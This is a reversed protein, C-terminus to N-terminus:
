KTTEGSSQPPWEEAERVSDYSILVEDTEPLREYLADWAQWDEDAKVLFRINLTWQKETM